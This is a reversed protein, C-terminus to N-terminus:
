RCIKGVCATNDIGLDDERRSFMALTLILLSIKMEYSM